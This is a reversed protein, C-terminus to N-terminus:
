GKYHAMHFSSSKGLYLFTHYTKKYTWAAIVSYWASPPKYVVSVYKECNHLRPFNSILAGVSETDQLPRSGPEHIDTKKRHGWMASPILPSEPTEKILASIGDIFAGSEHGWWKGFGGDKFVM